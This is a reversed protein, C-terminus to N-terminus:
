RSVLCRPYEELMKTVFSSFEALNVLKLHFPWADIQAVVGLKEFKRGVTFFDNKVGIQRVYLEWTEVQPIGRSLVSGSFTKTYRYPVNALREFHHFFTFTDWDVSIMMAKAGCDLLREFPTDTGLSAPGHWRTITKAQPGSAIFRHYPHPSVEANPQKLFYDALVGMETPTEFRDFLKGDTFTSTFAPMVLTGEAGLVHLLARYVVEAANSVELARAINAHVLLTDGGRVGLRYAGESVATFLAEATLNTHAANKEECSNQEVFRILAKLSILRMADKPPISIGLEKELALIINLHALSDWNPISQIKANDPIDKSPCKLITSLIELVINKHHSM